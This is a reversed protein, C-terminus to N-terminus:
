LFGDEGAAEGKGELPQVGPEGPVVEGAGCPLDGLDLRGAEGLGVLGEVGREGVADGPLLVAAVSALAVRDPEEVEVFRVAVLPDDGPLVPDVPRLLVDDGVDDGEDVAKRQRDDLALARGDAVGPLRFRDLLEVAVLLGARAPLVLARGLQELRRLDEDAGAPLAGDVSRDARRLPEEEFPLLRIGQARYLEALLEPARRRRLVDQEVPEELRAVEEVDDAVEHHELDFVAAGDALQGAVLLEDGDVFRHSPDSRRPFRARPAADDPVRLPRALAQGHQPQRELEAAVLRLLLRGDDDDGVAGLEVPLDGPHEGGAPEGVRLPGVAHAIQPPDEFVRGAPRHHRRDLLELFEGARPIAARLLPLDM